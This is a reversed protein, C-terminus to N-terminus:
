VSQQPWYGLVAMTSGVMLGVMLVVTLIWQYVDSSIAISEVRCHWNIYLGLQNCDSGDHVDLRKNAM